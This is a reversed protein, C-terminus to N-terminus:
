SFIRSLSSSLPPIRLFQQVELRDALFVLFDVRRLSANYYIKNAWHFNAPLLARHTGVCLHLIYIVL